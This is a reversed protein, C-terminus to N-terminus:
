NADKGEKGEPTEESARRIEDEARRAIERNLEDLDGFVRDVVCDKDGDANKIFGM